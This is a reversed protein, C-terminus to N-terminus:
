INTYIQVNTYHERGEHIQSSNVFLQVFRSMNTCIQVFKCMNTCIPVYKFMKTFIQVYKHRTFSINEGDRCGKPLFLMIHQPFSRVVKATFSVVSPGVFAM